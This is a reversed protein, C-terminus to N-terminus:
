EYIDAYESPLGEGQLGLEINKVAKFRKMADMFEGNYYQYLQMYNRLPGEENQVVLGGESYQLSNRSKLAM